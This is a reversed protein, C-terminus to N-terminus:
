IDSRWGDKDHLKSDAWQRIFVLSTSLPQRTVIRYWRGDVPNTKAAAEILFHERPSEKVNFYKVIQYSVQSKDM